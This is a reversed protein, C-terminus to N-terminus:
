PAEGSLLRADIDDLVQACGSWDNIVYHAGAAELNRRGAALREEQIAPALASWEAESLGVENGCSVLGVTWTGAALGEGIDAPTDGFKVVAAPPHVDLRQLVRAMMWPAPRGAPVDSVSASADPRYGQRAAEAAVLALLEATYGTTSGLRMGRARMLAASELVGPIVQATQALVSLQAPVFEAFLSDEDIVDVPHGHVQRWAEAVRPTALIRHLHERKHLGMFARVEAATVEVGARRFVAQFAQVPAQSGFDVATGAWDLVAARLPGCYRAHRPNRM